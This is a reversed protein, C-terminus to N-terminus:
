LDERSQDILIFKLSSHDAGHKDFFHNVISCTRRKHKIHSKYNALRPKFSGTSGVGQLECIECSALYIVNESTCTLPKNIEFLRGTAFARFSSGQMLFNKCADCRKAKCNYCGKKNCSLKKYPNSPALLEKLNANRKYSILIDKKTLVKKAQEDSDLISSHKKFIKRIDPARPNYKASFVCVNRDKRPKAQRAEHRTVSAVQEFVKKVHKRDHGCRILYEQYIESKEKFDMDLSCIRRLRLAVGKAIGLIQKKPHASNANLYLHADTPKSYVTTEIRNNDISILLDLFQLQRGGVEMTFQLNPDFGNLTQFFAQLRERDGRWLAFTDDRFRFWCRLEPYVQRFELVKIDIFEAVIDAYSCSNKPGMATGNEQLWYQERYKSCNNKLCIELAEVICEVPVDLCHSFEILKTRFREIGLQNDISPFMNIIDFSVLIDHESVGISNLDDVINLM